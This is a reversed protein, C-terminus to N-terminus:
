PEFDIVNVANNSYCAAIKSGDPNWCVEFIGGEGRHTRVRKGDKVRWVHLRKDFSGSAVHRGDPSFAVSYVPDTHRALTRVCRGEAVDWLKVTADYSASALLLPLTPNETGPGTPSWKITYIEKQHDAFDFVCRESDLSWVKCTYDDSCSALLRGTPDWKIANVEDSHGKFSAVPKEEGLACVYIMHDMSSTAFTTDNRWDVDLTPAAHFAFRRKVEGSAADWAIATKDVSGSLLVDGKANWKLSFIPGEHADLSHVLKGDSTWIRALGDYSGTALLSGDGNWDLTTVDKSKNAWEDSVEARSADDKKVPSGSDRWAECDDGDRGKAEGSAVRERLVGAGGNTESASREISGAKAEHKLVLPARAKRAAAAGSPGAPVSWVRATADGGGSALRSGSPSWACIFVESAHGELVTVRDKPVDYVDEEEEPTTELNSAPGKSFGDGDADMAEADAEAEAEAETDLNANAEAEAETERKVKARDRAEEAARSAEREAETMNRKTKVITKLAEVPKSLLDSSTLMSFNNDVDTGDQLRIIPPKM